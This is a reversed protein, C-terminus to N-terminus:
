GQDEGKPTRRSSGNESLKKEALARVRRALRSRWAYVADPRMEMLDCVEAVSRQEVLLLSFLLGGRPTLEQEIERALKDIVQRTAIASELNQDSGLHHELKEDSTVEEVWPNTRRRRLRSIIHREAVLGVFTTLSAGREPDWSRLIRGDREFLALFVDQTSDEIEQRLQEQTQRGQWRLLVRAVRSQIVPALLETLERTADTDGRLACSVRQHDM